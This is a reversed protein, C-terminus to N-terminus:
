GALAREFEVVDAAHLAALLLERLRDLDRIATLRRELRRYTPAALNLRSILVDLVAEM